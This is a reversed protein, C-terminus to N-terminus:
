RQRRRRLRALLGFGGTGLLLLSTPEPVPAAAITLQELQLVDPFAFSGIATFTGLTNADLFQAVVGTLPDSGAAIGCGGSFIFADTTGAGFAFCYTSGSIELASDNFTVGTGFIPTVGLDATDAMLIAPLTFSFEYGNKGVNSFTYIVDAYSNSSVVFVAFALVLVRVNVM